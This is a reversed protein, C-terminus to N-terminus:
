RQCPYWRPLNDQPWKKIYGQPYWWTAQLKGQWMLQQCQKWWKCHHKPHASQSPRLQYHNAIFKFPWLGGSGCPCSAGSRQIRGRTFLWLYRPVLLMSLVRQRSVRQAMCAVSAAFGRGLHQCLQKRRSQRANDASPMLTAGMKKLSWCPKKTLLAALVLYDHRCYFDSLAAIPLRHRHAWKYIPRNALSLPNIAPCKGLATRCSEDGFISVDGQFFCIVAGLYIRYIVLRSSVFVRRRCDGWALVIGDYVNFIDSLYDGRIGFSHPFNADGVTLAVAAWLTYAFMAWILKGNLGAIILSLKPKEGWHSRIALTLPATVPLNPPNAVSVMWRADQRGARARCNVGWDGDVFYTTLSTGCHGGFNSIIIPPILCHWVKRNYRHMVPKPWTVDEGIAVRRQMEAGATLPPLQQEYRKKYWAQIRAMNPIPCQTALALNAALLNTSFERPNWGVAM